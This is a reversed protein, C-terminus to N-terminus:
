RSSAPDRRAKPKDGPRAGRKSRAKEDKIEKISKTILNFTAPLMEGSHDLEQKPAYGRKKGRKSHLLKWKSSDIDKHVAIDTDINDEAIDIIFEAEQELLKRMKPNKKLYLGIAQRTVELKEAIRAQNGGSNQLAEKFTKQNIKAM